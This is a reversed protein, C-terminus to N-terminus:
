KRFLNPSSSPLNTPVEPMPTMLSVSACGMTTFEWRPRKAMEVTPLILLMASSSFSHRSQLWCNVSSLEPLVLGVSSTARIIVRLCSKTSPM